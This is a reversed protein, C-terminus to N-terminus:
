RLCKLHRIGKSMAKTNGGEPFGVTSPNTHHNVSRRGPHRDANLFNLGLQVPTPGPLALNNGRSILLIAALDERSGELPLCNAGWNHNQHSILIGPGTSIILHPLFVTGRVRIIGILGLISGAVPLSASTSRGPFGNASHSGTSQRHLNHPLTERFIKLNNTM